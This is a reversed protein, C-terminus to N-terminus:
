QNHATSLKHAFTNCVIFTDTCPNQYRQHQNIVTWLPQTSGVFLVWACAHCMSLMDGVRIDNDPWACCGVAATNAATREAVGLEILKM